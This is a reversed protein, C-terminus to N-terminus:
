NYKFPASCRTFNTSNRRPPFFIDVCRCTDYSMPWQDSVRIWCGNRHLVNWTHHSRSRNSHEHRGACRRKPPLPLPPFPPPSPYPLSLISNHPSPATAPSLIWLAGVVTVFWELPPSGSLRLGRSVTMHSRPVSFLCNNYFSLILWMKSLCLMCLFRVLSSMCM